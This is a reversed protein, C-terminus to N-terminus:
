PLCTYGVAGKCDHETPIRKFQESIPHLVTPDLIFSKNLKMWLRWFWTSSKDKHFHQVFNCAYILLSMSFLLFFTKSMFSGLSQFEGCEGLVLSMIETDKIAAPLGPSFCIETSSFIGWHLTKFRHGQQGKSNYNAETPSSQSYLSRFAWYFRVWNYDKKLTDCNGHVQNQMQDLQHLKDSTIM